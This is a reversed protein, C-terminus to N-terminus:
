KVNINIRQKIMSQKQFKAHTIGLLKLICIYIEAIVSYVNDQYKVM